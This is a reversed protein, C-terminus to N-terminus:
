PEGNVIRQNLQDNELCKSQYVVEILNFVSHGLGVEGGGMVGVRMVRRVGGGVGELREM